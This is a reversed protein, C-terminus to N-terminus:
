CQNRHFSFEKRNRTAAAFTRLGKPIFRRGKKELGFEILPKCFAMMAQLDRDTLVDRVKIAHSYVDIKM